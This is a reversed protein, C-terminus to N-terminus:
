NAFREDLWEPTLEELSNLVLDAIQFAPMRMEDAVPVAVCTMRGAKAALVGAASDEFVLCSTPAAGLAKAATLFVGPHPKGYPEIDASHISHFLDVLNFNQLCRMILPMPTSSAVAIPGRESALEIARLAGPMMVGESEVLDGVAQLIMGVVEPRSPSEWPHQAFWYDVVESVFMGKTLRVEGHPIPVGLDGLIKLEAKHWLIESDLLLGDMDFLTATLM